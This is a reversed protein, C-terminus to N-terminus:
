ICLEFSDKYLKCIIEDNNEDNDFVEKKRLDILIM